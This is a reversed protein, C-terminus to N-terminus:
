DRDVPTDMLCIPQLQTQSISGVFSPGAHARLAVASTRLGLNSLERRGTHARSLRRNRRDGVGFGFLRSEIRSTNAERDIVM